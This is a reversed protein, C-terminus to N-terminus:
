GLRIQLYFPQETPICGIYAQYSVLHQWGYADPRLLMTAM